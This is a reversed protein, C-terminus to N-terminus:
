RSRGPQGSKQRALEIHNARPGYRHTLGDVSFVEWGPFDDRTTTSRPSKWPRLRKPRHLGLSLVAGLM